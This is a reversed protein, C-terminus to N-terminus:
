IGENDLLFEIYRIAKKLDDKGGKKDWRSIYKIVNGECFGLNNKIIYDIPQIEFKKYHDPNIPDM